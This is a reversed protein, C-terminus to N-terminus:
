SLSCKNCLVFAVSTAGDSGVKLGERAFGLKELVRLSAHNGPRARAIVRDWGMVTFAYDICARAAETAYGHGWTWRAYSYALEVVDPADDEKPQFGCRGIWRGTAKLTVAWLPLRYTNWRYMVTAMREECEARTRTQGQALYRVVEPDAYSAALEDLDALEYGRLILRETELRPFDNM